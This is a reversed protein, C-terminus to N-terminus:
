PEFGDGDTVRQNELSGRKIGAEQSIEARDKRYYSAIFLGFLIGFTKTAGKVPRDSTSPITLAPPTNSKDACVFSLPTIEDYWDVAVGIPKLM